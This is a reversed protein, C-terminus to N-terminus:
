VCKIVIQATKLEGLPLLPRTSSAPLHVGNKIYIYIYIHKYVHKYVNYIYICVCMNYM